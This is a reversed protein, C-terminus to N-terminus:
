YEKYPKQEKIGAGNKGRPKNQPKGRQPQTRKATNKNEFSKKGDNQREALLPFCKAGTKDDRHLTDIQNQTISLNICDGSGLGFVSKGEILALGQNCCAYRGFQYPPLKIVDSCIRLKLSGPKEANQAADAANKYAAVFSISARDKSLSANDSLKQLKEPANEGDLVFHCYKQNKIGPMPCAETHPCPAAITFGKRLLGDRLLSVFRGTRPGAPEAVFIAANEKAYSLITHLHRKADEDPTRQSNQLLENFMNAAFVGAVPKRVETGFDGKIRVINWPEINKGGSSEANEKLTKSVVSLFLEEGAALAAASNDMVYVTLKKSRLKPCSLWLAIPVTLPGSGIDLIAEGDSFNAFFDEDLACFVACLRYLNWWCFYRIYASLEAQSNMYGLRRSNREDTLQHSLNRIDYPLEQLQKSNLPRCNQVIQDFNCLIQWDEPALRGFVSKQRAFKYSAGTNPARSKNSFHPKEPEDDTFDQLNETKSTRRRSKSANAKKEVIKAYFPQQNDKDTM